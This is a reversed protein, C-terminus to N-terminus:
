LKIDSGMDDSLLKEIEKDIQEMSKPQAKAKPEEIKVTAEAAPAAETKAERTMRPKAAPAKSSEKEIIDIDSEMKAKRRTEIKKSIRADEAVEEASKVHKKVLMYRAVDKRIRLKENLEALRPKEMDFEAVAYTGSRSNEVTFGLARRGLNQDSTLTGGLAKITEKVQDFTAVAEQETAAGPMLVMVEYHDTEVEKAPLVFPEMGETSTM